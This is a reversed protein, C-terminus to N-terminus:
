GEAAEKSFKDPNLKRMSNVLFKGRKDKYEKLHNIHNFMSFRKVIKKLEDMANIPVLEALLLDNFVLLLPLPSFSLPIGLHKNRDPPVEPLKLPDIPNSHKM